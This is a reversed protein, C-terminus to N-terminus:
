IPLDDTEPIYGDLETDADGEGDDADEPKNSNIGLRELIRLTKPDIVYEKSPDDGWLDHALRKAEEEEKKRKVEDVKLKQIEKPTMERTWHFKVHTITRKKYKYEYTLDRFSPLRKLKDVSPDLVRRTFEANSYKSPTDTLQRIEEISFIRSGIMRLQKLLRYLHKTYKGNLSNFEHLECRPFEKTLDNVLEQFRPSMSITFTQDKLSREYGQFLSFEGAIDEGDDYLYRLGLMKSYMSSMLNATEINTLHQKADTLSRLQEFNLTISETGRDRLQSLIAFFLKLEEETFGHFALMNLKNNYKVIENAM